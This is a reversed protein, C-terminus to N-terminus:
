RRITITGHQDTRYVTCGFAEVRELLAPSPHGYINEQAVSILVTEPTVAKLLEESTSDAAGHHGAVLIDVDPLSRKRMLMREGFASRDGTILIDCKETDFLVCLSNENDLGSYVPGYIQLSATGFALELDEWVYVIKGSIEPLMMENRTDPLFLYDTDMGSLLNQLAGAHDRDYHTLIIGDLRSIGQSLLRNAIIDATEKDADGGCDVLFTKGESQLLISQGQGVDLMTIATDSMLPETWSALLSICLGLTGCCILLGPQKNGMTLYVALLVYVFILWLVVYVSDTYVAAVPVDSLVQAALLVYRIPWALISGLIGAVAPLLFYVLCLVALGIFIMQVVWLTLLNTVVGILSVMGFYHACLPTTLSMASVTVSIGGCVMGSFRGFMGKQGPLLRRLWNNIPKQFLLIGAVCGASLQLSVSAVALPNVVLMVLVAFSLATPPDYERDFVQALLMLGIMIAARTVSPSFGAVAAFLFLVPFGVVASLFRRRLTIACIMGYLISIHLGSVAVIHRIGSIKLATDTEYPLDWTDGLLLAKAFAVADQPITNELVTKVNHAMRAPICWKPIEDPSSVTAVGRQDLVLFIGKGQFILSEREGGPTTLRIRFIGEVTDGPELVTHDSLYASLQYPKGGIDAAADVVAGYETTRSYDTVTVSVFIQQGDLSAVPRIYLTYVLGFWAIGLLCGTLIAAAPRLLDHKRYLVAAALILMVVGIAAVPLWVTMLGYTCIGCALAFGIAFWM